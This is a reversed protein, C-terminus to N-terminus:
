DASSGPETGGDPSARPAVEPANSENRRERARAQVAEEEEQEEQKRHRKGMPRARPRLDTGDGEDLCANVRKFGAVSSAGFIILWGVSASLQADRLTSEPQASILAIAAFQLVSLVLDVTPLAYSTTCSTNRSSSTTQPGDVFLFSCGSGGSWCIIALLAV